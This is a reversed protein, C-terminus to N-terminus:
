ARTEARCRSCDTWLPFSFKKLSKEVFEAYHDSMADYELGRESGERMAAAM